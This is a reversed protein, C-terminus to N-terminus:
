GVMLREITVPEGPVFNVWLIWGSNESSYLPAPTGCYFARTSGQSVDSLVHVHGLAVYDYRSREIALTGQDVIAEIEAFMAKDYTSPSTKVWPILLTLYAVLVLVPMWRTWAQRETTVVAGEAKRDIM